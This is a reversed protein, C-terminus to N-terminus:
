RKVVIYIGALVLLGGGVQYISLGEGLLPVALLATMVPQLLLTVATLSAPLHGLAYNIAMWGLAHSILGLAILALYQDTSYGTLPAGTALVYALLLVAAVASALWMFSLTGMYSRARQTALLYGAYFLSSFLSLLDGLGLNPHLFVDRGVVIVAGVLALAMGAWFRRQLAEKFLLTAGLAVWLTSTNGLLTSNAASTYQLSTNWTGLDLAFFLGALATMGFAVRPLEFSSKATGRRRTESLAYPVSLVASAIAVRYFASVAGPTDAWKTFIASFAICLAGLGLAFYARYRPSMAGLRARQARIQTNATNM